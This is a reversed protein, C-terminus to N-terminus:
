IGQEKGKSQDHNCRRSILAAIAGAGVGNDINVVALGPSCSQLMGMLAAEGKAGYGYGVSTPVGIVPVDTLGAVVVLGDVGEDIMRKVPELVRHLAAVGVDYATLVECGMAEAVVRAEEAVGVDSSGAALVGIRGHKGKARSKDIIVMRAEEVYTVKMGKAKRKVASLHEPSARSILLIERDAMVRSVIDAVVEPSKTEGFVVEPIGRRAERAHDFVTHSSISELFDLKLLKEAEADSLEGRRHRELVDRISM